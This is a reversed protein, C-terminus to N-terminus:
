HSVRGQGERARNTFSFFCFLGVSIIMAVASFITQKALNASIEGVLIVAEGPNDPSYHIQLHSGVPYTQVIANAEERDGAVSDGFTYRNCTFPKGDVAYEYVLRPYYLAQSKGKRQDVTSSIITGTTQPWAMSCKATVIQSIFLALFVGSVFAPILFLFANPRNPTIQESQITQM